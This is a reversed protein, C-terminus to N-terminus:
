EFSGIDDLDYKKTYKPVIRKMTKPQKRKIRTEVNFLGNDNSSVSSSRVPIVPIQEGNHSHRSRSRSHRVPIVPIQEGNHSHRSRSRSRSHSRSHVSEHPAPGMEDDKDYNYPNFLHNSSIELINNYKLEITENLTNDIQKEMLTDVYFVNPYKKLIDNYLKMTINNIDYDDDNYQKKCDNYIATFIEQATSSKNLSHTKIWDHYKDYKTTTEFIKKKKFKDIIITINKIYKFEYNEYFSRETVIKHPIGLSWDCSNTKKASEDTLRIKQLGLEKAFIDFLQFYVRYPLRDINGIYDYFFNNLYLYNDGRTLFIYIKNNNDYFIINHNGISINNIIQGMFHIKYFYAINSNFIDLFTINEQQNLLNNLNLNLISTQKKKTKSSKSKSKSKSRERINIDKIDIINDNEHIIEITTQKINNDISKELANYRSRSHINYKYQMQDLIYGATYKNKKNIDTNKCDKYIETFIEQLTSSENLTPHNNLWERVEAEREKLLNKGEVTQFFQATKVQNIYENNIYKYGYKEFFSSGTVIKHTINLPWFCQKDKVSYSYDIPIKIKSIGLEKAFIDFLQFYITYPLRDMDKYKYPNGFFNDLELEKDATKKILNIYGCQEGNEYEYGFIIHCTGRSKGIYVDNITYGKFHIQYLTPTYLTPTQNTKNFIKAFKEQEQM